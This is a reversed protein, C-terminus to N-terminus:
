FTLLVVTSVQNCAFWFILYFQARTDKKENPVIQIVFLQARKSIMCM